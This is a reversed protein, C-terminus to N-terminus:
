PPTWDGEAWSWMGGLWWWQGLVGLALAVPVIWRSRPVALAALAPSAPLLLRWTSSQPFFVALLYVLWAAVWIRLDVGLRTMWPSTLALAALALLLLLVVVGLWAPLGWWQFWWQAGQIWPSFPVFPVDGLYPRRWAFETETYADLRGTAIGAILVWAFGSVVSVAGASLAGLVDRRPFREQGKRHRWWRLLFHGGMALAFALGTPRTLSMVPILPLMWFYRRRVLLLLLCGLLFLQMSEAYGVQLIPSVPNFLMLAVGALASGHPLWTLFLRYFVFAAAATFGVAVIVAMAQFPVATLLSLGAVLFPYAPMFAWANEAVNGQGDPYIPLVAPYGEVAVRLYWEADWFSSFAIYDPQAGAWRSAGQMSAQALILATSVVRSALFVLLVQVWWRRLVGAM